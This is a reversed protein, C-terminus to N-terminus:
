SAVLLQYRGRDLFRIFGLDRLVQLQQRIKPRVNQNNPYLAALDKEFGYGDDIGFHSKGLQRVMRLVDLTWGRANARVRAMPKLFSYQRQVDDRAVPTGDSVIRIKGVDAIESLLINCGVWGARRATPALPKRKQIAALSFFFSPVALLNRVSWNDGYQMILLNPVSDSRLARVMSDYGADPIRRENWVRSAKLQYSSSCKPCAFDVAQSNCPLRAVRDSDCSLCYLNAEGWAETVRRAMQCRSKLGAASSPDMQLTLM